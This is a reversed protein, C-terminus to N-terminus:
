ITVRRIKAETEVKGRWARSRGLNRELGLNQSSVWVDGPAVGEGGRWHGLRYPFLCNLEM